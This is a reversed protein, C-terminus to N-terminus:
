TTNPLCLVLNAILVNTSASFWFLCNLRFFTVKIQDYLSVADEAKNKNVITDFTFKFEADKPKKGTTVFTKLKNKGKKNHIKTQKETIEIIVGHCLSSLGLLCNLRSAKNNTCYNYYPDNINGHVDLIHYNLEFLDPLYILDISTKHIPNSKKKCVNFMEEKEASQYLKSLMTTKGQVQSSGIFMILPKSRSVSTQSMGDSRVKSQSALHLNDRLYGQVYLPANKSFVIESMCYLIPLPM